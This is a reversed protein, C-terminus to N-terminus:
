VAVAGELRDGGDTPPAKVTAAAGSAARFDGGGFVEDQTREPFWSGVQLAHNASLCAGWAAGMDGRALEVGVRMFTPVGVELGGYRRPIYMRHFGADLMAEHVEPSYTAREETEAQEAILQERLARACAVLRDGVEQME